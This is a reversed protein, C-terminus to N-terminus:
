EQLIKSIANQLTVLQQKVSPELHKHIAKTNLGPQPLVSMVKGNKLPINVSATDNNACSVQLPSGAASVAFEGQLPLRLMAPPSLPNVKPTIFFQPASKNCPTKYENEVESERGQDRILRRPVKTTIPPALKVPDSKEEGVTVSSLRDEVDGLKIKLMNGFEGKIYQAGQELHFLIDNKRILLEREKCELQSIVSSKFYDFQVTNPKTRPKRKRGM